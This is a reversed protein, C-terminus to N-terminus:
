NGELRPTLLLWPTAYGRGDWQVLIQDLPSLDFGDLNGIEIECSMVVADHTASFREVLVSDTLAGDVLHCEVLMISHGMGHLVEIEGGEIDCLVLCKGISDADERTFTGRVDISVGNLEAMKLIDARLSDKTEYAIVECGRLAMGVAYYGDGAGINVFPGRYESLVRQVPPEYMGLLKLARSGEITDPVIRMGRFPGSCVTTGLRRTVHLDLVVKRWHLSKSFVARLVEDPEGEMVGLLENLYYDALSM